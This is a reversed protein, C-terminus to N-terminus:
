VESGERPYILSNVMSFNYFPSGFPSSPAGSTSAPFPGYYSSRQSSSSSSSSSHNLQLPDSSPEPVSSPPFVSGSPGQPGQIGLPRGGPLARQTSGSSIGVSLTSLSSFFSNLCPTSSLMSVGPSSATSKSDEPPEPSQSPRLSAPANDGDPKGGVGSALGPSIGEESKSTGVAVSPTSSAESRRKRKRRFNGNDFMKECNPDLTWYNGKGSYKYQTVKSGFTKVLCQSSIRSEASMAMAMWLAGLYARAAAAAAPPGGVAPGNLWLYPNAAAAPPAAYDTLGYPARAPAPAGPAAAAAAAAATSPLGPQSYVGFNDGCYLAM